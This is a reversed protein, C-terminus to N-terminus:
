NEVTLEQLELITRGTQRNEARREKVLKDLELRVEKSVNYKTTMIELFTRILLFYGRKESFTGLSKLLIQVLMPMELFNEM